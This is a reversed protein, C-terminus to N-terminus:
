GASEIHKPDDEPLSHELRAGSIASSHGVCIAPRGDRLADAAYRYLFPDVVSQVKEDREEAPTQGSFDESYLGRERSLLANKGDLVLAHEPYPNTQLVRGTFGNAGLWSQGYFLSLPLSEVNSPNFM